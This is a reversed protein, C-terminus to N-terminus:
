CVDRADGTGYFLVFYCHISVTSTSCVSAHCVCSVLLVAGYLTQPENRASTALECDYTAQQAAADALTDALLAQLQRGLDSLATVDHQAALQRQAEAAAQQRHQDVPTNTAQLLEEALPQVGHLTATPPSYDRRHMTHSRQPLVCAVTIALSTTAVRM